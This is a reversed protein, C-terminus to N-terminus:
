RVPADCSGIGLRLSQDVVVGATIGDRRDVEGREALEVVEHAHTGIRNSYRTKVCRRHERTIALQESPKVGSIDEAIERLSYAHYEANEPAASREDPHQPLPLVPRWRSL